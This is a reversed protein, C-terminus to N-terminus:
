PGRALRGPWAGVLFWKLGSCHGPLCPSAPPPDKTNRDLDSELSPATHPDCIRSNGQGPRAGLLPHAPAAPAAPPTSHSQTQTAAPTLPWGGQAAGELAPPRPQTWECCPPPSSSPSPSPGGSGEDPHPCRAGQEGAPRTATPPGPRHSTRSLSLHPKRPGDSPLGPQAGHLHFPPNTCSAESVLPFRPRLGGM